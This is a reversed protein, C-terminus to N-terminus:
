FVSPATTRERLTKSDSGCPNQIAGVTNKNKKRLTKQIFCQFQFHFMFTTHKLRRFYQYDILQFMFIFCSLLFCRLYFIRLDLAQKPTRFCKTSSKLSCNIKRIPPRTKLGRCCCFTTFIQKHERALRSYAVQQQRPNFVRGGILTEVFHKLIGQIPMPSVYIKGITNKAKM